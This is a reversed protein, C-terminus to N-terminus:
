ILCLCACLAYMYPMCTLCVYLAYMYPMCMLCEYLVYAHVYPMCTLCVHLAYMYPGRTLAVPVAAYQGARSEAWERVTDLNLTLSSTVHTYSSTVLSLIM